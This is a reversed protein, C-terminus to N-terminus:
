NYYNDQINPTMTPIVWEMTNPEANENNIVAMTNLLMMSIGWEIKNHNTRDKHVHNNYNIATKITNSYCITMNMM